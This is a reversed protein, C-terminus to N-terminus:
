FDPSVSVRERFEYRYKEKQSLKKGFWKRIPTQTSEGVVVYNLKANSDFRDFTPKAHDTRHKPTTPTKPEVYTALQSTSRKPRSEFITGYTSAQGMPLDRDRKM